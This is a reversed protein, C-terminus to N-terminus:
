PTPMSRRFRRAQRARSAMPRHGAQSAFAAQKRGSKAAITTALKEKRDRV